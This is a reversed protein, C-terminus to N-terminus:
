LVQGIYDFIILSYPYDNETKGIFTEEKSTFKIDKKKALKFMLISDNLVQLKIISLQKNSKQFDFYTESDKIWDFIRKVALNKRVREIQPEDMDFISMQNPLEVHIKFQYFVKEQNKNTDKVVIEM